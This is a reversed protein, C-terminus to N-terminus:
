RACWALLPALDSRQVRYAALAADLLEEPSPDDGSAARVALPARIGRARV